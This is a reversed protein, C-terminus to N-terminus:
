PKSRKRAEWARRVLELEDRYLCNQFEPDNLHDLVWDFPFFRVESLEEQQIRLAAPDVPRLLLYVASYENDVFRVGRFVERAVRHRFGAFYLEDPAVTLGLEENLERLASELFDSGAPLHGASSIDWCGPYADKELSRKQLLVDFCCGAPRLIWVHATGHLDGDRHVLAREKVEGTKSGDARRLDFYESLIRM